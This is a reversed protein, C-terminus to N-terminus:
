VENLVLEISDQSNYLCKLAVEKNSDRTFECTIFNYCLPGDKWTASYVTMFDNKTIENIKDLQYYPIWEFVLDKHNIELQM